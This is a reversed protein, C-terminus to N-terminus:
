ERSDSHASATKKGIQGDYAAALREFVVGTEADWLAADPQIAVFDPIAVLTM